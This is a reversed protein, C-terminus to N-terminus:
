PCPGWANIVALLDDVNVTGSGNIDAPCGPCPGWANIVALLDDVNVNGNGTIDAPCAPGNPCEFIYASGANAGGAHDDQRAGIVLTDGASELAIAAGFWDDAAADAATLKIQETWTTGSRKFVYASGADSGGANDDGYAGVVATDGAAGLALSAGFGDGAAADSATLKAQQTWVGRGPPGSRVFVYASGSQSGADDDQNSGVVITDGAGGIAVRVGFHDDAAGDAATLKAYEIWSNGSKVFVYASGADIGGANDELYAGVVATDESPSIAVSVGFQDGSVGDSPHLHQGNWQESGPPGSRTFFYASGGYGGLAVHAGVVATNGQLAVAVGFYTFAGFDAPLAAQQTWVESGPPGSRVFVYATGTASMNPWLWSGVLATNGSIAVSIGSQSGALEYLNAGILKAQQTWVRNGPPGSRVYVYAAGSDVGTANDDLRSGVVATDGSVAVSVGFEDDAAADSATLKQQEQCLQGFSTSAICLAAVSAIVIRAIGAQISGGLPSEVCKM